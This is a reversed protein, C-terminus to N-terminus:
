LKSIRYNPVAAGYVDLFNEKPKYKGYLSVMTWWDILENPQNAYHSRIQITHINNIFVRQLINWTVFRSVANRITLVSVSEYYPIATEKHLEELFQQAKKVFENTPFTHTNTRTTVMCCYGIVMSYTDIWPWILSCVFEHFRLDKIIVNVRTSITNDNAISTEEVSLIGREKLYSLANEFKDSTDLMDQPHIELSILEGLVSSREKWEEKDIGTIELEKQECFNVDAVIFSHLACLLISDRTFVSALANKYISLLLCDRNEGIFVTDGRLDVHGKFVTLCREVVNTPTTEKSNLYIPVKRTKLEKLLWDVNDILAELPISSRRDCLRVDGVTQLVLASVIHSTIAIYNNNLQKTITFGLASSLDRRNNKVNANEPSNYFDKLSIPEGIKGAVDGFNESMLQMMSSFMNITTEKAKTEGLMERVHSNSEVMYEYSFYVPVFIVNDVRKKLFADLIINLIGFKPHHTKGNRSRTGEVFFELYNGEELLTTVYENFIAKYVPQDNFQRKMFLAGCQRMVDSVLMMQLFDEGAIINPLPYIKCCVCFYSLLLFDMYSRHNPVYIVPHHPYKEKVTKMTAAMGCEVIDRFRTAWLKKFGYTVMKLSIPHPRAFMTDMIKYMERKKPIIIEKLTNSSQQNDGGQRLNLMEKKVKEYIKRRMRRHETNFISTENSDEQSKVSEFVQSSKTNYFFKLFDSFLGQSPQNIQHQVLTETTPDDSHHFNDNNSSTLNRELFNSMGLIPHHNGNAANMLLSSFFEEMAGDMSHEELVLHQTDEM